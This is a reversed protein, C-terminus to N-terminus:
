LGARLHSIQDDMGLLRVREWFVLKLLDVCCVGVRACTKIALDHALSGVEFYENRVDFSEPGTPVVKTQSAVARHNPHGGFDITHEYLKKAVRHVTVDRQALHSMVKGVTFENKMQRKTQEDDHRRIWLEQRTLNGKVYFAYLSSELAGRLTMHSEALQGCLALQVSSRYSCHARFCMSGAVLDEESPRHSLVDLFVGDIDSLRQYPGALNEVSAEVNHISTSLYESLSDKGWEHSKM